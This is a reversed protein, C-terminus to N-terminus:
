CHLLTKIICYCACTVFCRNLLSEIRVHDIRCVAFNLTDTIQVKHCYNFRQNMHLVKGKYALHQAEAFIRNM